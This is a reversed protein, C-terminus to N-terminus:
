ELFGESKLLQILHLRVVKNFSNGTAQAVVLAEDWVLPDTRVGLRAAGPRDSISLISDDVNGERINDLVTRVVDGMSVRKSWAYDVLATHVNPAMYIVRTPLSTM